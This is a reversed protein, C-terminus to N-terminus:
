LLLLICGTHSTATYHLYSQMTPNQSDLSVQERQEITGRQVSNHLEGKERKNVKLFSRRHSM